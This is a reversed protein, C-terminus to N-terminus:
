PSTTEKPEPNSQHNLPQLGLLYEALHLAAAFAHQCNPHRQAGCASCRWRWADPEPIFRWRVRVEGLTPDRVILLQPQVHNLYGAGGIRVGMPRAADVHESTVTVRREKRHQPQMPRLVTAQRHGSAAPM